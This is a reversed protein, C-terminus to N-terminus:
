PSCRGVRYLVREGDDAVRAVPLTAVFRRLVDSAEPYVVVFGVRAQDLGRRSVECPVSAEASERSLRLLSAYPERSVYWDVIDPRLRAVYGGAIPHRHRTQEFLADMDVLGHEAFGDRIGFPVTLVAANSTDAAVRTYVGAAPLVTLPLPAALSEVAVAALVLGYTVRRRQPAFRRLALASLVAACIAVMFLARDPMRANNVIPVFRLLAGPLILGTNQGLVTLYPGLAWVAFVALVIGWERAVPEERRRRWASAALFLAAWGVYASSEMPDIDLRGYLRRM